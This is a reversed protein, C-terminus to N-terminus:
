VQHPSISPLEFELSILVLHVVFKIPCIVYARRWFLNFVQRVSWRWGCCCEADLGSFRRRRRRRYIQFVSFPQQISAMRTISSFVANRPFISTNLVCWIISLRRYSPLVIAFRACWFNLQTMFKELYSKLTFVTLANVTSEILQWQTGMSHTLSPERFQIPRFSLQFAM